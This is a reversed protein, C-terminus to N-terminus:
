VGSWTGTTFLDREAARRRVLGGMVQGNAQNWKPFEAAAGAYDLANLKRLLTSGILSGAGANYVFDVLAAKQADKLPATVARDVSRAAQMLDLTLRADAQDQGWVTKPGIGPGTAGWGITWPAAGTAPDPYAVLRCGEFRRTMPRCLTLWAPENM